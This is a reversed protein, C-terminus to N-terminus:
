FATFTFVSGLPEPIRRAGLIWEGLLRAAGVFLCFLFLAFVSYLAKGAARRPQPVLDVAPQAPADEQRV